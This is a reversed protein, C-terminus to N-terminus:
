DKFLEKLCTVSNGANNLHCFQSKLSYRVWLRVALLHCFWSEFVIRVGFRAESDLGSAVEVLFAATLRRNRRGVVRMYFTVGRTRLAGDGGTPITIM